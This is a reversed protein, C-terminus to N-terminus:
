LLRSIKVSGIPTDTPEAECSIEKGNLTFNIEM